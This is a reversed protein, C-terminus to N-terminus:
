KDNDIPLIVTFTSGVGVESEINIEANYKSLLNHTSYLGLGTGIPVNPEQDGRKPKTTFFPDKLRPINEKSIGEGTDKVEVYIKNDKFYTSVILKKQESNYMADAANGIINLLSQSFDSYVGKILPLNEDFNFEKQINHKFHLNAEFFSLETKLLNNLCVDTLEEEQDRRSKLMMNNVIDKIRRSQTTISKLERSDPNTLQMLEAFGIIASLPANINHAIGSALLGIAELKQSQKLQEELYRQQTIDKFFAITAVDGEYDLIKLMAEILIQRGDKSKLIMEYRPSIDEGRQRRIYNDKIKECQSPDILDECSLGIIEERSYGLLRCVADNTYRVVGLRDGDNQLIAVCQGLESAIEALMRYKAESEQLAQEVQIRQTINRAIEIVEIVNGESDFIPSAGVYLYQQLGESYKETHTPVGTEFVKKTPCNECTSFQNHFAEYCKKGILEEETEKKLWRRATDNVRIIEFQSDVVLVMDDISRFLNELDIKTKQLQQEAKKQESIDKYVAVVGILEGDQLISSSSVMVHVPTGDKKYRICTKPLVEGGNSAKTALQEKEIIEKKTILDDINKGKVEEPTYGFLRTAEPNWECVSRNNDLTIIADPADRLLAELYKSRESLQQDLEVRNTIDSVIALGANKEEYDIISCSINVWILSGDKKRFRPVKHNSTESENLKNSMLLMSDYYAEDGWFVRMTLSLLEERTYGYQQISSDNADLIRLTDLDFIFVAEGIGDLITRELTKEPTETMM